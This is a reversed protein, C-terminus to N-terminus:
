KVTVRRVNAGADREVPESARPEALAEAFIEIKDKVRDFEQSLEEILGENELEIRRVRLAVLSFAAGTGALSGLLLLTTLTPTAGPYFTTSFLGVAALTVATTACALTLPWTKNDLV